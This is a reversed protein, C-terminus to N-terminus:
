ESWYQELVANDKGVVYGSGGMGKVDEVMSVILIPNEVDADTSFVCFWGIESGDTDDKTAKIEATGTKGASVVDERYAAYGTGNPDNIVGKLGEMVTDTTDETFVDAIWIDSTADEKYQLYLKIVNGNNLFATYLSALHLPNVLIQGQGYGSDALQIETEIHETNSYQSESMVIEFPIEQNFGLEDLSKELNEAGVKLALKAFYINDSYIIANKLIVPEYAHLTTVEYDGWSSDKQWALGENGFDENPDISDTELGIAAIIPKFTSGPCWVQRFRNYLPKNEDENMFTWKETSLGKIFDNNDYSPTSVMALVEGTYPNIAVSCGRDDKFQEYMIEQLESDITLQINKGDEKLIKAVTSKKNENKDVISIECGNTGKLEMEYLSEMGTRGIESNSIYGEGSHNELDEATAKQVYGILHAAAEELAYSRVEVDSLMVGSIDLLQTQRNYEELVSEDPAITMLQIEQVKPITAIPVFSDEKVWLAELKNEISEVSIELLESLGKLAADKDELKGLVIGVSSATGKGALVKGNRDSIEGRQAQTTSVRVKDTKSLDPFILSDQWILKYGDAAKSFMAANDFEVAGAVTDFSTTYSIEVTKGDQKEILVNNIEMNTAEIGEYIKSNREIFETRDLESSKEMDIMSFMKEYERNEIHGMYEVLLEELNDALVKKAFNAAYTGIGGVLIIFVMGAIILRKRNKQKRYKKM